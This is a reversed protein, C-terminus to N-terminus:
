SRDPGEERETGHLDRIDREVARIEEHLSTLYAELDSLTARRASAGRTLGRAPGNFWPSLDAPGWDYDYGPGWGCHWGHGYWPSCHHYRM